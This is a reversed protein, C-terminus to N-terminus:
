LNGDKDLIYDKGEQVETIVNIEIFNDDKININIEGVNEGSRYGWLSYKGESLSDYSLM